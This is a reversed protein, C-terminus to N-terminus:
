VDDAHDRAPLSDRFDSSAKWAPGPPTYNPHPAYASHEILQMKHLYRPCNPFIRDATVRVIFVSGPFENRLPDDESIQAIGNVRLRKPREFDVFLM